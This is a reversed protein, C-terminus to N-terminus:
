RHRRARRLGWSFGGCFILLAVVVVPWMPFPGVEYVGMGGMEEGATLKLETARRQQSPTVPPQSTASRITMALFLTFGIASLRSWAVVFTNM